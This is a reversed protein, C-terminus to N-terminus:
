IVMLSDFLAVGKQNHEYGTCIEGPEDYRVTWAWKGGRGKWGSPRDKAREKPARANDMVLGEKRAGSGDFAVVFARRETVGWLRGGDGKLAYVPSGKGGPSFVSWGRKSQRIDFLCVTGHRAGGGAVHNEGLYATSYVASGDAWQWPDFFETVPSPDPTRLDHLRLYSDFWSSLLLSPHHVSPSSPFTMDYPSSRVNDPGTLARFQKSDPGTPRIQHMAIGGTMGLFISPPLHPHRTRIMSSWARDKEFTDPPVWPSKTKFVSVLGSATTTMLVEGEEGAALTHLNSGRPHAYHAMSQIGGARLKLRQLTGDYQAIALEDHGIEIAGIIDAGSTSGKKAIMYEVGRGVAKGGPQYPDVFPHVIIKGGVGLVLRQSSLSLTPIASDRWTPGIQLAHWRRHKLALNIFRDHQVLLKPKWSSQAPHLTIHKQSHGLYYLPVGFRGIQMDALSTRTKM